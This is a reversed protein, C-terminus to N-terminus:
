NGSSFTKTAILQIRKQRATCRRKISSVLSNAAVARDYIECRTVGRTSCADGVYNANNVDSLNIADSAYSM